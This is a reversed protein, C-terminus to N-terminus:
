TAGMGNSRTGKRILESDFSFIVRLVFMFLV